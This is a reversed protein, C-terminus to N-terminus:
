APKELKSSAPQIIEASHTEQALPISQPTSGDEEPQKTLDAPSRVVIVDCPAHNVMYNSFSGLFFRKFAGLGRSGVFVIDSKHETVFRLAAAQVQHTSMMVTKANSIKDQELLEAYVKALERGRKKLEENAAFLPPPVISMGAAGAYAVPHILETIHVVDLHDDPKKLQLARKFAESSHTSGDVFVTMKHSPSATTM